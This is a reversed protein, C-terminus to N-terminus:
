PRSAKWRSQAGVKGVGYLAPQEPGAIHSGYRAYRVFAELILLLRASSGDVLVHTDTWM